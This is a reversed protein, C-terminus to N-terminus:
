MEVTPKFRTSGTKDESISSSNISNTRLHSSNYSMDFLFYHRKKYRDKRVRLVLACVCATETFDMRYQFFVLQWYLCCNLQLAGWVNVAVKKKDGCCNLQWHAGPRFLMLARTNTVPLSSVTLPQFEIKTCYVLKSSTQTYVNIITDLLASCTM